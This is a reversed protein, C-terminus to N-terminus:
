IHNVMIQYNRLIGHLLKYFGHNSNFTLLVVFYCYARTFMPINNSGFMQHVSLFKTAYAGLIHKSLDTIIDLSIFREAGPLFINWEHM